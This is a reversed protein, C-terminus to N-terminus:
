AEVPELGVEHLTAYIEPDQAARHRLLTHLALLRELYQAQTLARAGAVRRFERATEPRLGRIFLVSPQISAKSNM